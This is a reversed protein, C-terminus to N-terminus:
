ENIKYSLKNNIMRSNYNQIVSKLINEMEGKMIIASDNLNNTLMKDSATNFFSISKEGNFVLLYDKYVMQYNGNLYNISFHLASSDFVSTGYCIITDKISLYDLVSPTIDCHQVIRSCSGKLASDGNSFFVIPVSYMGLNNTYFQNIAHSTHDSTIIFLTNNFWQSRRASYFFKRLALDTYAINQLIPNDGKPLIDRYKQPVAFPHHSSLTYVVSFFPERTKNLQESFYELYPEDWIGWTGDYDNQYPYENKGYYSGFGAMFSFVDFGMTGNNGGHYFSTTYGGKALIGPLGNFINSSYKSLIFPTETLSPIGALISPLSELSKRGNAYSNEFVLSVGFLSDLFPTFGSCEKNFYGIYEKSFSELIIIIVNKPTYRASDMGKIIYVPSFYKEAEDGPFYGVPVIGEKGLTRLLSFSTNLVLPVERPSVFRAASMLRVPRLSTGRIVAFMIAVTILIYGFRLFLNRFNVVINGKNKVTFLKYARLLAFVLFAYILVLYWYDLAFQPLLIKTDEGTSILSFLDATSRKGTFKFYEIDIFEPIILISNVIIFYYKIFLNYKKNTIFGFPILQLVIILANAVFIVWLDFRIGWLFSILIGGASSQQFYSYNFIFFLFRCVQFLIVLIIIRRLVNCLNTYYSDM